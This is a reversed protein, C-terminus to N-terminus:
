LSSACSSSPSSEEFPSGGDAAARAPGPSSLGAHDGAASPGASSESGSLSGARGDSDSDSAACDTSRLGPGRDGDLAPLGTPGEDDDDDVELEVDESDSSAAPSEAPLHVVTCIWSEHGKERGEEMSEERLCPHHPSPLPTGLSSSINQHGGGVLLGLELVWQLALALPHSLVLPEHVALKRTSPARAVAGALSHARQNCCIGTNPCHSDHTDRTRLSPGTTPSRAFLTASARFWAHPSVSQPPLSARACLMLLRIQLM